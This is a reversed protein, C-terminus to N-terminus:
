QMLQRATEKSYKNTAKHAGYLGGAVTLASGIANKVPNRGGFVNMISGPLAGVFGGAFGRGINRMVLSDDDRLGYHNILARKEEPTLSDGRYGGYIAGLLANARKTIM